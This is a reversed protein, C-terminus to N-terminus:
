KVFKLSRTTGQKKVLLIYAGANLENVRIEGNPSYGSKLQKGSELEFITYDFVTDDVFLSSRVPNPYVELQNFDQELISNITGIQYVAVARESFDIGSLSVIVFRGDESLKMNHIVKESEITTNLNNWNGNHYEYFNIKNSGEVAILQGDNAFSLINSEVNLNFLAQGLLFDSRPELQNNQITYFSVKGYDTDRNRSAILNGANNLAFYQVRNDLDESTIIDENPQWDENDFEFVKVKPMEGNLVGISVAIVAITNGSSDIMVEFGFKDGYVNSEVPSGKLIWDEGQEEYVQVIGYESDQSGFVLVKGDYSLDMSFGIGEYSSAGKIFGSSEIDGEATLNYIKVAGCGTFPEDHSPLGIALRNGSESLSVVYGFGNNAEPVVIDEGIQEWQDNNRKFLRVVGDPSDYDPYAISSIAIVSGDYNIDVDWGIWENENTTTFTDGIQTQALITNAFLILILLTLKNM